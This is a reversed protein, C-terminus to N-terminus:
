PCQHCCVCDLCLLDCPHCCHEFPRGPPVWYFIQPESLRGFLVFRRDLVALFRGWAAAIKAPVGLHVAAQVIPVRPLRDFCKVLDLVGGSLPVDHLLAHEVETMIRSWSDSADRDKLYGLLSPPAWSQFWALIQRTRLIAWARYILPLM